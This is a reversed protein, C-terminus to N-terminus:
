CLVVTPDRFRTLVTSCVMPSLLPLHYTLGLGAGQERFLVVTVPNLPGVMTLYTVALIRGSASLFPYCVAKCCFASKIM